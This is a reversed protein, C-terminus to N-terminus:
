RTRNKLVKVDGVGREKWEKDADSYRYLKARHVYLTEENEEGSTVEVLPPLPIM